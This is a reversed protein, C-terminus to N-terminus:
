SHYPVKAIVANDALGKSIQSAVDYPTTEWAKGDVVKGDSLTLKIPTCEKAAVEADYKANLKEFLAICGALCSPPPELQVCMAVNVRVCVCM